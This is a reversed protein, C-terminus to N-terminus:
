SLRLRFRLAALWGRLTSGDETIDAHIFRALDHRYVMSRTPEAAGVEALQGFFDAADRAIQLTDDFAVVDGM